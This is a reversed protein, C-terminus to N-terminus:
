SLYKYMVKHPGISEIEFIEEIAAYGLKRYFVEAGTRANFWLLDCGRKILETEAAKIIERGLGKKQYEFDTAMGRLRYAKRASLFHTNPQQMFTGNCVIRGNVSIGLHFSTPLEDEAYRCKEIDQGPRLIRSRLDITQEAQIFTVEYKM